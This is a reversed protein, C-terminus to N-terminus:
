NGVSTMRRAAAAVREAILSQHGLLSELGDCAALLQHVTRVLDRQVEIPPVPTPMRKASGVNFHAQAIGVKRSSVHAVGYPSNMVIAAYHPDLHAGVRMIVLDACNATGGGIPFVCTRGVNGSRVSIVEGGVLASKELEAHFEPDIYKLNAPDYRFWDVNQSRLFPIGSTVYRNSMPGVHGVTIRECLEGFEQWAWGEPLPFAGSPVDRDRRVVQGDGGIADKGTLAGSIALQLIAHRLVNLSDPNDTVTSWNTNVREWAHRVDVPTQAETLAHFASGRFRAAAVHRREQRSELEDCLGMLEEVRAVIREQEALPPLAVIYSLFPGRNIHKMVLGHAAKSEAMARICHRLLHFLYDATVVRHDPDVKFIHQNVVADDRNWRFANLTASWSVLIDGDHAIRDEPFPGDAYNFPVSPNTLNQIRIIPIGSSKWDSNKFALGNIYEGTDDLRAWEWGPPLKEGREGPGPIRSVSGGDRISDALTAGKEVRVAELGIRAPDDGNSQEVLQGSVALKLALDRLRQVGGPAEAITAFNELSTQTDM